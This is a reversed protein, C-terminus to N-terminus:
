HDGDLFDEEQDTVDMGLAEMGAELVEPLDTMAMLYDATPTIAQAHATAIAEDIDEPEFAGRGVWALAVLNAKEDDNMADMFAHLEARAWQAERFQFIIQVVKQPNIELMGDGGSM